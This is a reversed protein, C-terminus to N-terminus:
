QVLFICDTDSLINSCEQFACMIGLRTHKNKFSLKFKSNLKQHIVKFILLILDIM